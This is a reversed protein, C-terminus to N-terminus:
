LVPQAQLHEIRRQRLAEGIAPGKLSQDIDDMSIAHFSGLALMMQRHQIALKLVHSTVLLQSLKDPAKHASCAQILDIKEAASLQDIISLKQTQQLFLTAFQTQAKPVKASNGIENIGKVATAINNSAIDNSAIDNSAINDSNSDTPKLAFSDTNLSAMLLAWRQSLNLQM